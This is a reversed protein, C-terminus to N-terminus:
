CAASAALTFNTAKLAMVSVSAKRESDNKEQTNQSFVDIQIVLFTVPIIYIINNKKM